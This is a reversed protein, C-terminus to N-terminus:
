KMKYEFNMGSVDYELPSIIVTLAEKNGVCVKNKEYIACVPYNRINSKM